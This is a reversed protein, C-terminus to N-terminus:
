ATIVLEEYRNRSESCAAIPSFRSVIFQKFGNQYLNRLSEHNANTVLIRVNRNKARQLCDRLRVQDDWSFLIENYKIFGNENHRVTYPPDAFIFDGERAEDIVSEFDCHKIQARRLATSWAQFDDDPRIVSTKSGLPVNFKGQRNVRYIGNFCTRNLYLLRAAREAIHEPESQRVKYYYDRSHNEAHISLIRSVAQHQNRIGRYVYFLDSCLDSLIAERPNLAFFMAGGGLFPEIYRGDLQKPILAPCQEFLWRKGGPWKLFPLLNKEISKKPKASRVRGLPLALTARAGSIPTSKQETNGDFIIPSTTQEVFKSSKDYNM